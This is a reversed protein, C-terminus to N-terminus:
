RKRQAPAEVSETTAGVELRADITRTEGYELEIHSIITPKFGSRSLKLSYTGVPLSTIQYRGGQDTVAGNIAARDQALMPLAALVFAFYFGKM